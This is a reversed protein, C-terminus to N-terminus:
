SPDIRHWTRMMVLGIAFVVVLAASVPLVTRLWDIQEGDDGAEVPISAQGTLDQIDQELDAEPLQWGDDGGSTATGGQLLFARSADPWALQDDKSGLILLMRSDGPLAAPQCAPDASALRLLFSRSEATGKYYREPVVVVSGEDPGEAVTAVVVVAAQEVGQRLTSETLTSCGGQAHAPVM